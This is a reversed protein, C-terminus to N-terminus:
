NKKRKIAKKSSCQCSALEGTSYINKSYIYVSFQKFALLLTIHKLFPNSDYDDVSPLVFHKM